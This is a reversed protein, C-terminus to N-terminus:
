KFQEELKSVAGSSYDILSVNNQNFYKTWFGQVTKYHEGSIYSTSGTYVFIKTNGLSIPASKKLATEISNSSFNGQEMKLNDTWNMMDSLIIVLNEGDNSIYRKSQDLAGIIDTGKDLKNEKRYKLADSFNQNFLTKLSDTAKKLNETAIKEEDAAATMEPIYDFQDLTLGCLIEKSSSVSAKDIPLVTLKTNYGIKSIISNNVVGRLHEMRSEYEPTESFDILCIINKQKVINNCGTTLVLLFCGIAVQCSLRILQKM